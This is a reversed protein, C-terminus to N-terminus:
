KEDAKDNKWQKLRCFIFSLKRWRDQLKIFIGSTNECFNWSFLAQNSQNKSVTFIDIFHLAYISIFFTCLFNINLSSEEMFNLVQSCHFCATFVSFLELSILIVFVLILTEPVNWTTTCHLPAFLLIWIHNNSEDLKCFFVRWISASNSTRCSIRTLDLCGPRQM